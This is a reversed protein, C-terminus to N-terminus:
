VEIGVMRMLAMANTTQSVGEKLRYDFTITNEIIKDTFHYNKIQQPCEDELMGLELDHTTVFGIAPRGALNKIVTRAGAIRDRSNTGRFIEDILFIFPKGQGGASIVMKIRQLEAYFSSINQELSDQVGMSTYINMLSCNLAGACVPAGAYSLVLNIGVTRLLTSKGSMNSGTIIHVAGPQPLSVDNCVRARQTILPHGLATASFYPGGGTVRPFAWKPNDHALAALSSLAEFQGIVRFWHELYMGYQSKWQDLRRITYLDCFTLANVFHYVVSYRLNILAAIKSLAKIQQSAGQNNKFLKGQLEVLLPAQFAKGEILNLLQSLRELEAAARETNKLAGFIFVQGATVLLVQLILLILPVYTPVLDMVMFISLVLTAAPLLLLFYIYKRTWSLPGEGAWHWLQSLDVGQHGSGMGTAQFHQRWDLSPALEIIANQRARIDQCSTTEERLLHALEQEGTVLNTANIYQYLSGQGFINLDKSYHHKPDSFQEGSHPFGTWGGSLRLLGRDNIQIINGLYTIEGKVWHHKKVMWGFLLVPLIVYLYLYPLEKLYGYILFGATALAVLSRYLVLSNDKKKAAALSKEYSSKNSQYINEINKEM